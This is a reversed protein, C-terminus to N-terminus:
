MVREFVAYANGACHLLMPLLLSHSRARALAFVLGDGFVFIREPASYQVHVAAFVLATLVIAAPINFRVAIRDFMLGRFLLEESLPAFVIIGTARLLLVPLPYTWKPAENLGLRSLLIEQAIVLAVFVGAWLATQPLTPLRLALTERMPLKNVRCVVMVVIIALVFAAINLLTPLWPSHM